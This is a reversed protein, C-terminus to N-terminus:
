LPINFSGFGILDLKVDPNDDPIQINKFNIREIKESDGSKKDPNKKKTSNEDEKM